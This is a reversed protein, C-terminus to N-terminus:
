RRHRGLKFLLVVSKQTPADVNPVTWDGEVWKFSQGLPAYVVGGSWNTSTETGDEPRHMRPGHRRDPNVRFTPEIDNLKGNLQGLVRQYRALHRPDEPRAPFGNKIVDDPSATLPNFGAPPKFTMIKIGGDLTILTM